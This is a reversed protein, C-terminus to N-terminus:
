SGIAPYPPTNPSQCRAICSRKGETSSTARYLWRLHRNGNLCVSIVSEHRHERSAVRPMIIFMTAYISGCPQNAQAGGQYSLIAMPTLLVEACIGYNCHTDHPLEGWKNTGDGSGSLAGKTLSYVVGHSEGKSTIPQIKDCTHGICIDEYTPYTQTKQKHYKFCM